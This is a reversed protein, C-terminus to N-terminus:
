SFFEAELAECLAHYIPLHREQITPTRDAPIRITVDCLSKLKGGERGTMGITHLGLACAVQVARVMNGSNGSTSLVLLTDGPQGYGYVQQAFIMDPAVDNAFATTLATQSVLSIAPIAGQLHDALYDGEGPFAATLRDRVSDSVKRPLMYGKMLEGVIHEADSASGGNGCVLLKRGARVTDRLTEYAFWIDDACVSLEPYKDILEKIYDQTM